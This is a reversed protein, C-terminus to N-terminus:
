KLYKSSSETPRAHLYKGTVALSSHNLQKQVLHIPCGHELSHTAHSHRLWHPSVNGTIGAKLAIRRVIRQIQGVCLPNGKRSRFIPAEDSAGNRFQCLENWLSAPLLIVNTKSGKTQVTIQGSKERGKLNSWRLGAVESVRLGTYYLLKLVMRNRLNRAMEFM